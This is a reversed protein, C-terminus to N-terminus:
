TSFTYCLGLMNQIPCKKIKKNTFNPTFLKWYLVHKSKTIGEREREKYIYPVSAGTGLLGDRRWPRLAVHFFACKSTDIRESVARWVLATNQQSVNCM